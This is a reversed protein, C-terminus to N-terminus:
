ARPEGHFIAQERKRERRTPEAANRGAAEALGIVLRLRPLMIRLANAEDVTEIEANLKTCVDHIDDTIEPM